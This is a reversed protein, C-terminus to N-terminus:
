QIGQQSSIGHIHSVENIERSQKGNFVYKIRVHGRGGAGGACAYVPM